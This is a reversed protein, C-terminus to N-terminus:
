EGNTGRSAMRYRVHDVIEVQACAALSLSLKPVELNALAGSFEM